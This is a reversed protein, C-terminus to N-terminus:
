AMEKKKGKKERVHRGLTSTTSEFIPDDKHIATHKKNSSVSSSEKWM